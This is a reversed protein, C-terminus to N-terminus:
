DSYREQWVLSNLAKKDPMEPQTVPRGVPLAGVFKYDEPVGFYDRVLEEPFFTTQFSSAYGLAHAALMLNQAAMAGDYIALDPHQSTDVFILVWVPAKFLSRISQRAQDLIDAKAAQSRDLGEIREEFRAQVAKALGARNEADKVVLFRWPQLNGATPAHRAADLIQELDQAAVEDPLFQRVSRRGRIATFTDM